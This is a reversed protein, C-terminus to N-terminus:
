RKFRSFFNRTFEIVRGFLGSESQTNDNQNTQTSNTRNPDFQNQNSNQKSKTQNNNMQNEGFPANMNQNGNGSDMSVGSNNQLTNEAVYCTGTYDLGAEGGNSASNITTHGGIININGNSDLGDGMSSNITNEGGLINISYSMESEYTADSNAANVGDDQANVKTNGSIINVVTGELGETSKEINITPNTSKSGVTLIHDAHIGDDEANITVTGSLITIDYGSNIGDNAATIDISPGDIVFSPNDENGVKIGNKCNQADIILTGDGTLYVNSGDKAKLAAGDFSDAVEADTSEEDAPDENDTLKVTGSIVIKVEATKNISVTAGTTSTLDLDKLILVVDTTGKKVVINGDQCTGTVIYTGSETIKVENDTDTMVYTIANDYDAEIDVATNEVTSYVIESPETAFSTSNTQNPMQGFQNQEGNQEPMQGFQNQEGNQEPMQGFQNQEGNQEPMQGFQNQEGNQEPMQGFQNQEGNQEPMQGFQNQEGNQGPMQGFQGKPGGMKNFNGQMFESQMQSEVDLNEQNTVALVNKAPLIISSAIVASSLAIVVKKNINKNNLKKM